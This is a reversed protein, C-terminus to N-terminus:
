VNHPQQLFSDKHSHPKSLLAILAEEIVYQGVVYLFQQGNHVHGCDAEVALGVAEHELAQRAGEEDAHLVLTPRRKLVLM